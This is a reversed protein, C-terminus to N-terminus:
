EASAACPESPTVTLRDGHDTDLHWKGDAWRGAVYGAVGETQFIDTGDVRLARGSLAVFELVAGHASRRVWAWEADAEVGDAAGGDVGGVLLTDTDEGVTLTFARGRLADIEAVPGVSTGRGCPVLFMVVDQRGTGQTTLAFATAPERVGYSPSVWQRERVLALGPAFAAIRLAAGDCEADAGTLTLVHDGDTEALIGPACRLHVAVQHFGASEIRDRIVWYEGKLFLVSRTHITPAALRAYGDHAGQFYDFRPRALWTRLRARAVHDWRFVSAPVSSSQGDVTVTNHAASSRFANRAELSGTYTFTGPDVLFPCGQAVLEVALADAHAHGCTLAGHPGCDIVAFNARRTWGDRMVYYGAERFAHSSEEPAKKVLDRFQAVATPGMLWLSQISPEGAVYAYDPRRFLVAGTALTDRFDNAARDGLALLQGGDDDGITPTAGDPRTIYMLHDLMRELTPRIVGSVPLANAAGLISAHVYFDTAYRHYQTAQEFYVGDPRVQRALQERLIRWGTERWRRALKFEPLLIGLHFLGLAEGILHTNPSFYTSLYTELHRAHVYLFKLVRLFAHPSLAASERFFHLAWLWSIARFSVELSSAWNIGIKPPNADMWATVHQVFTRAYAEDGTYWYAQGLTTFYQHRSLEWTNKSDGVAQPDLFRIESWHRLPARKGAKPDLHWDPGDTGCVVGRWGFLDFRGRRVNDAREVVAQEAEPWTRRLAELTRRRDAFSAFFHSSERARFHALLEEGSPASRPVRNPDLRRFLAEDTPEGVQSSLGLRELGVNLTQLARVRFEDPTRGRLISVPGRRGTGRRALKAM